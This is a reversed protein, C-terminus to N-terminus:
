AESYLFVQSRRRPRWHSIGCGLLRSAPSIGAPLEEAYLFFHPHRCFAHINLEHTELSLPGLSQLKLKPATKRGLALWTRAVSARLSYQNSHRLKVPKINKMSCRNHSTIEAGSKGSLDAKWSDPSDICFPSWQVDQTIYVQHAKCLGPVESNRQFIGLQIHKSLSRNYPIERPIVLDNWYKSTQRLAKLTPSYVREQGAGHRDNDLGVEADIYSLVCKHIDLPLCM